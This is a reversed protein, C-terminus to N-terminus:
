RCKKGKCRSTTTAANVQVMNSGTACNNTESSESVLNTSDACALMYYTTATTTSPVTVSVSGSSSTGAALSSVSRSGLLLDSSSFTGDLSLYYRTVSPAAPGPGINTTTDSMTFASGATISSPPTSLGSVTLDPLSVTGVTVSWSQTDMLLQQPDNRVLATTDQVAVKVTHTGNAMGTTSLAFSPGSAQATGDVYWTVNLLASMPQPTSISFNYSQGPTLTISTTAPLFSDIVSGIGNYIRKVFQETNIQDYPQGLTRMKSNYTPRYLGSTCYKASVYDGAVSPVTSTTPVTTTSDVWAKWKLTSLSSSMTANPEPPETTNNCTPPSSSYEDALLAFSHGVEHMVIELSSSNLSAAAVSGGSGGYTTDNVLVLVIDHANAPLANSVISNVTSTNVCILRVIGNCDYSAGLATNVYTGLEPHDAGSQQSVVDIRRVNYYHQYEYWPNQAFMKSVTNQADTAFQSMQSSTYGDGLIVIDVRHAPDGNNVIDYATQGQVFTGLLFILSFVVVFRTKM